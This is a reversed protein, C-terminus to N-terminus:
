FLVSKLLKFSLCLSATTLSSLRRKTKGSGAGALVLLFAAHRVQSIQFLGASTTLHEQQRNAFFICDRKYVQQYDITNKAQDFKKM